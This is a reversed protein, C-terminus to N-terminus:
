AVYHRSGLPWMRGIGAPTPRLEALNLGPKARSRSSRCLQPRTRLVTHGSGPSCRGADRSTACAKNRFPAQGVYMAHARRPFMARNPVIHLRAGEVLRDPRRPPRPLAGSVDAEFNLSRDLRFETGVQPAVPRGLRRRRSCSTRMVGSDVIEPSVGSGRGLSSRGLTRLREPSTRAVGRDSSGPGFTAPM